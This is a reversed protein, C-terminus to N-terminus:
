HIPRLHQSAPHRNSPKLIDDDLFNLVSALTCGAVKKGGLCGFTHAAYWVTCSM